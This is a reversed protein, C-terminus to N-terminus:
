FFLFPTQSNRIKRLIVAPDRRKMDKSLISFVQSLLQRKMGPPFFRDQDERKQGAFVGVGDVKRNKLIDQSL